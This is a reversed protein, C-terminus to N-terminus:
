QEADIFSFHDSLIKVAEPQSKSQVLIYDTTYTSIYFPCLSNETLPASLQYVIGIEDFGFSGCVKIGTWSSSPHVHLNSRAALQQFPKLLNSDIILNLTNEIHSYSFFDTSNSFILAELILHLLPSSNSAPISLLHLEKSLLTLKLPLSIISHLPQSNLDNNEVPITKQIPPVLIKESNTFHSEIITLSVDLHQKKVLVYDTQYTSLYFITIGRSALLHSVSTVLGSTVTFESMEPADGETLQIARWEDESAKCGDVTHLYAQLPQAHQSDIILSYEHGTLTMSFFFSEHSQELLLQLIPFTFKSISLRPLSIFVLSPPLINLHMDVFSSETASAEANYGADQAGSKLQQKWSDYASDPMIQVGLHGPGVSPSGVDDEEDGRNVFM